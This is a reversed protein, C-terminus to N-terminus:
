IVQSVDVLMVREQCTSCSFRRDRLKSMTLNTRVLRMESIKQLINYAGKIFIRGWERGRATRNWPVGCWPM